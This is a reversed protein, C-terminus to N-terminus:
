AFDKIKRSLLIQNEDGQISIMMMNKEEEEDEDQDKDNLFFHSTFFLGM